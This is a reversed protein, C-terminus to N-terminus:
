SLSKSVRLGLGASAAMGLMAVRTGPRITGARGM